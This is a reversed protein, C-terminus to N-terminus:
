LRRQTQRRSTSDKLGSSYMDACQVCLGSETSWAPFDAQILLVVERPLEAGWAYFSTSPFGCLPCPGAARETRHGPVSGGRPNQAFELLDRHCPRQLHFFRSFASDVGDKLMPFTAVFERRRLNEVEAPLFGKAVLRGDISTDWLVRYRACLLNDLSPTRDMPPLEPHYGFDPDLMDAVHGLERRLLPLLTEENLLSASRIRIVIHPRRENACTRQLGERVVDAGEEERNRAPLVLCRQAGHCLIPFEGLVQIIRVGLDLVRFWRGHLERFLVERLEQDAVRYLDNRERRFAAREPLPQAEIARLVVEEALSPEFEVKLDHTKNTLDTEGIM